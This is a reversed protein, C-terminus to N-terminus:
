GTSTNKNRGVELGPYLRLPDLGWKRETFWRHRSNGVAKTEEVLTGKYTWNVFDSRPNLFSSARWGSLATSPCLVDTARLSSSPSSSSLPSPPSFSALIFIYTKDLGLGLSGFGPIFLLLFSIKSASTRTAPDTQHSYENDVPTCCIIEFHILNVCRQGWLMQPDPILREHAQLCAIPKPKIIMQLSSQYPIPIQKWVWKQPQQSAETGQCTPKKM